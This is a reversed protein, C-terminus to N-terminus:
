AEAPTMDPHPVPTATKSAASIPAPAPCGGGQQSVKLVKELAKAIADGFVGEFFAYKVKAVDAGLKAAIEVKGDAPESDTLALSYDYEEAGPLMLRQMGGANGVYWGDDGFMLLVSKAPFTIVGNVNTGYGSGNFLNEPVQSAFSVIGDSSNLFM